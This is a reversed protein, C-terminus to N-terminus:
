EGGATFFEPGLTITQSAAATAAATRLTYSVKLKAKLPRPQGDHPQTITLRQTIPPPTAAMMPPPPLETGSPAGFDMTAFKPVALESRLHSIEAEGENSYLLEVTADGAEASLLVLRLVLGDARMAERGRPREEGHDRTPTPTCFDGMGEESEPLSSTSPSPALAPAPAPAPAPTPAPMQMQMPPPPSPSPPLELSLEPAPALPPMPAPALAPEPTSPEPAAAPPTAIETAIEAMDSRTFDDSIAAPASPTAGAHLAPASPADFGAADFGGFGVGAKTEEESRAEAGGYGQMEQLPFAGGFSAPTLGPPTPGPTPGPQNGGASGGSFLDADIMGGGYGGGGSAGGGDAGLGFGGSGFDAQGFGAQGVDAQGFGAQGLDAQTQGVDAQKVGAQGFDAQGFDAQGFGFGGASGFGGTSDTGRAEPEAHQVHM